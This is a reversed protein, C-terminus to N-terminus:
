EPSNGQITVSGDKEVLVIWPYEENDSHATFRYSGNGQDFQATPTFDVDNRGVVEQYYRKAFYVANQETVVASDEKTQTSPTEDGKLTTGSAVNSTASSTMRTNTDSSDKSQEQNLSSLQKEYKVKLNSAVKILRQSEKENYVINNEKQINKIYMSIDNSKKTLQSASASNIQEDNLTNDKKSKEDKSTFYGIEKNLYETYKNSVKSNKYKKSDLKLSKLSSLKKDDDKSLEFKKYANDLKAGLSIQTREVNKASKKNCGFLMTTTCLLIVLMFLCQNRKKFM